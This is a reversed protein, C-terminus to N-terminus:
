GSVRWGGDVSLVEGTIMRAADSLLFCSASAVDDADILDGALPQKTKMLQLIAPNEQARASMPTRILAPAIANIRIKEPAYYAAMSRTMAIIAGKSAAYAHTAFYKASPSFGRVRAMNFVVGRQGNPGMEQTLMRRIAARCMFFMSKVNTDMTAEWGEATCEHIPGDGFKRGSIGAVNYLGDIRGFAKVCRAVVEDASNEEVLDAAHYECAGDAERIEEALKRCHDETRSVVFIKAGGAAAMAATAAGIGTSGSILLVKDQLSNMKSIFDEATWPAERL